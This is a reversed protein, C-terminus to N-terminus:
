KALVTTRMRTSASEVVQVRGRPVDRDAPQDDLVQEGHDRKEQQWRQESASEPEGSQSARVIVATLTAASTANVAISANM